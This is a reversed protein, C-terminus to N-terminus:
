DEPIEAAGTTQKKSSGFQLIGQRKNDDGALIPKQKRLKEAQKEAKRREAEAKKQRAALKKAAVLEEQLTKEIHLSIM